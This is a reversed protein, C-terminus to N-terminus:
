LYKCIHSTYIHALETHIFLTAQLTMLNSHSHHHMSEKAVPDSSIESEVVMM